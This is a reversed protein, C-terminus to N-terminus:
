VHNGWLDPRLESRNVGTKGEILIVKEAPIKNRGKLWSNVTQRKVSLERAMEAQSGFYQVVKELGNM